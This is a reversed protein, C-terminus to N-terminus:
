SFNLCCPSSNPISAQLHNYCHIAINGLTLTSPVEMVLVDHCDGLSDTVLNVDSSHLLIVDFSQVLNVVRAIM